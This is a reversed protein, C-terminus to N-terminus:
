PSPPTPWALGTVIAAVDAATTAAGVKLKAERRIRKITAGALDWGAATAAVGRVVDALALVQGVSALAEQEAVLWPFSSPDLAGPPTLALLAMAEAAETNTAEYELSQGSGPTLFQLRATEAATDIQVLAASQLSAFSPPAPLPLTAPIVVGNVCRCSGGVALVATVTDWQEKTVVTVGAPVPTGAAAFGPSTVTGDMAVTLFYHDGAAAFPLPFITPAATATATAAPTTLTASITASM